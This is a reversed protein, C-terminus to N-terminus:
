ELLQWNKEQDLIMKWHDVKEMLSMLQWPMLKEEEPPMSQWPMPSMSQWPLMDLTHLLPPTYDPLLM